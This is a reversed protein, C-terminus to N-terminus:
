PKKLIDKMAALNEIDTDIDKKAQPLNVPRRQNRVKPNEEHMDANVDALIDEPVTVKTADNSDFLDVMMYATSLKSPKRCNSYQKKM